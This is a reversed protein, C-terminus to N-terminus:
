DTENLLEPSEYINGIIKINGYNFVSKLLLNRGPIIGHEKTRLIHIVSWAAAESDWYVSFVRYNGYGLIDGEFIEKGESDLLGTFQMLVISSKIDDPGDYTVWENGIHYGPGYARLGSKMWALEVVECMSKNLLDWARFKIERM